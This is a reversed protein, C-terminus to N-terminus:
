AIRPKLSMRETSRRKVLFRFIWFPILLYFLHDVFQPFYGRTLYQFLALAFIINGLNGLTTYPNFIKRLSSIAYGFIFSLITLGPLGFAIYFYAYHLTAEGNLWWHSPLHYANQIQRISVNNKYIEDKFDGLISRPIARVFTLLFSAGYDYKATPVENYYKMVTFDALSGRTQEFFGDYRFSAPNFDVNSFRGYSFAARNHTVFFTFYVFVLSGILYNYIQRTSIGYRWYQIFLLGILVLIVRYRFGMLVFIIFGVGFFVIFYKRPIKCLFLLLLASIMSDAFNRLYNSTTEAGYLGRGAEGSFIDVINIGATILDVLVIGTFALFVFVVQKQLSAVPLSQTVVKEPKNIKVVAYGLIFMLNALAYYFLGTEYFDSIDRGVKGFVGLNGFIKSREAIYFYLPTIFTYVIMIMLSLFLPFNYKVGGKRKLVNFGLVFVLLSFLVSIIM